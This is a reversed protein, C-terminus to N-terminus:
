EAKEITSDERQIAPPIPPKMFNDIVEDEVKPLQEDTNFHDNSRRLPSQSSGKRIESLKPSNRLVISPNPTGFQIVGDVRPLPFVVPQSPKRCFKDQMMDYFDATRVEQALSCWCCFLWQACDTVAPKGCCLHNAPLNFRKRM